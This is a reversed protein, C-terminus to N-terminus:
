ALGHGLFCFYGHRLDDLFKYTLVAEIENLLNQQFFINSFSSKAQMKWVKFTYISLVKNITIPLKM